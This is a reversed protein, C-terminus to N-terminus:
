KSAVSRIFRILAWREKEGLQKWPPMAGRGNSIKWFLEGDTQEQVRSSTWDAPKPNLAAAAPGNGTFTPGHCPLCNAKALKEGLQVTKADAPLPNRKAREGSPGVWATQALAAPGLALGGALV